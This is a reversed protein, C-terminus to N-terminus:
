CLAQAAVIVEQLNPPKGHHGINMATCASATAALVGTLEPDSGSFIALTPKGLATALHTLGTDLGIVRQSGALLGALAAIGLPPAVVAHPLQQALREARAREEVSGAPLVLTCDLARGLAVWDSEPWCKDARSTGTLLVVYPSAPLWDAQVPTARIGYDLAQEVPYDFAASALWRNREIAHASKPIAFGTDYFRAALPERAAEAAYGIRRGKIALLAQKAILASKILGQSDLVIDYYEDHLHHRFASIERWTAASFIRKRWRRLAVPIVRSVGPHLRPIDAFGEEVVWDIVTGPMRRQIDTVLPLNHVVDGLSSTKVLLVRM